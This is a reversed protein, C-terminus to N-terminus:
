SQLHSDSFITKSIAVLMTLSALALCYGFGLPLSKQELAVQNAM